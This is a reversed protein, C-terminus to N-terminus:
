KQHEPMRSQVARHAWARHNPRLRGVQELLPASRQHRVVPKLFHFRCRNHRVASRRDSQLDAGRLTLFTVLGCRLSRM